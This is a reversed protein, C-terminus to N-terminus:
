ISCFTSLAKLTKENGKQEEPTEFFKNDGQVRASDSLAYHCVITNHRAVGLSQSNQSNKGCSQPRFNYFNTSSFFILTMFDFLLVNILCDCIDLLM